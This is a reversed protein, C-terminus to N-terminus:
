DRYLWGAVLSAAVAGVGMDLAWFFPFGRGITSWTAMCFNGPFGAAFGVMGGVLLATKPGAGWALRVSAYLCAVIAALVFVTLMWWGIFFPFRPETLLHGARQAAEYRGALFCMNVVISWVNWVVGGALAGLWVRKRNIAAM